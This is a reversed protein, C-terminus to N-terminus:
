LYNKEFIRVFEERTGNKEYAEQAMKKLQLDLEHDYHVGHGSMNHHDPCLYVWCGYRESNNRNAGAFIHHRHLGRNAGCVFCVKESSLISLKGMKM